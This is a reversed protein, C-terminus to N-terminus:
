FNSWKLRGLFFCCCCFEIKNSFIRLYFFILDYVINCVKVKDMEEQYHESHAAAKKREEFAKKDGEKVADNIAKTMQSRLAEIDRNLTQIQQNLKENDEKLQKETAKSQNRAEKKASEISRSLETAHSSDLATKLSQFPTFM